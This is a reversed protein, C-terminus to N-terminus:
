TEAPANALRSALAQHRGLSLPYVFVESAEETQSAHLKNADLRGGTDNADAGSAKRWKMMQMSGRSRIMSIVPWFGSPTRFALSGHSPSKASAPGRSCM